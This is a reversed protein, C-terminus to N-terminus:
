RKFPTKLTTKFIDLISKKSNSAVPKLPECPHSCLPCLRHIGGGHLRLQHLCLGCLVERCHTCRHTAMQEPHRPCLLNGDELMIPPTPMATEIKPVSIEFNVREVVLEVQGFQLRQGACLSVEEAGIRNGDVFTGNTSGKDLLLLGDERLRFECHWNSVSPDQIVFDNKPNRGVRTVGLRLEIVQSGSDPLNLLISAM